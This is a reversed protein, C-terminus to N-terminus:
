TEQTHKGLKTTYINEPRSDKEGRVNEMEVGDKELVIPFPRWHGAGRKRTRANGFRWNICSHGGGEKM